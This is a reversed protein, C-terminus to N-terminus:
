LRMFRSPSLVKSSADRRFVMVPVSGWNTLREGCLELGSNEPIALIDCGLNTALRRCKGAHQDKYHCAISYGKVLNLGPSRRVSRDEAEPATRIDAGLVIAGASGGYVPKREIIAKLIVKLFGSDRVVDLLRGTDGGGIYIGSITPVQATSFSALDTIMRINTVGLRAAMSAFWEFCSPFRTRQMAQPVYLLPKSADLLAVFREDLKRSDQETGGGALFLRTLPKM